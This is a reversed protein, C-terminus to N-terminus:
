SEEHEHRLHPPAGPLTLSRWSGAERKARGLADGRPFGTPTDGIPPLEPLADTRTASTVALARVQGAKIYQISSGVTAVVLQVQGGILDAMALSEGRYPVHQFKVGAMMQFLEGCM